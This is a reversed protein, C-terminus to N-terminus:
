TQSMLWYQDSEHDAGLDWMERSEKVFDDEQLTEVHHVCDAQSLVEANGIAKHIINGKCKDEANWKQRNYTEGRSTGM